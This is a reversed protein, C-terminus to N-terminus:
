SGSQPVTAYGSRAHVVLDKGPTRIELPHWGPRPGPEFVIIYQYRLELFLDQLEAQTHAPQSAIRMDGGTWRALDELTLATSSRRAPVVATDEGPHDLPNVVTLLYVPVDISRAIKTVEEPSLRSHTDVGDTIVLVARHRNSRASTIRATGAIADFLSTQGWPKGELSVRRVRDVDSTFGVVQQLASDFTFLAAEDGQEKLKTMAVSVAHRARDINGGIGMSGSIDILVAVSVPSSSGAYFEQIPRGFGSDILEFDKKTLNRVLRGRKDRVSVAAVVADVRGTFVPTQPEPSLTGASVGATAMWTALIVTVLVHLRRM